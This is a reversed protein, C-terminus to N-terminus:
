HPGQDVDDRASKVIKHEVIQRLEGSRPQASSEGEGLVELDVCAIEDVLCLSCSFYPSTTRAAGSVSEIMLGPAQRPKHGQV